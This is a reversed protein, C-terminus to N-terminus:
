KEGEGAKGFIAMDEAEHTANWDCVLRYAEEYTFLGQMRFPLDCNSTIRYLDSM